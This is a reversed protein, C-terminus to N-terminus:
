IATYRKSSSICPSNPISPFIKINPQLTFQDDVSIIFWIICHLPSAAFERWICFWWLRAGQSGACLSESSNDPFIKAIIILPLCCMAPKHENCLKSGSHSIQTLLKALARASASTSPCVALFNCSFDPLLWMLPTQSHFQQSLLFAFQFHSLEQYSRICTIGLSSGELLSPTLVGSSLGPTEM